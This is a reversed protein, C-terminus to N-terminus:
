LISCPGLDYLSSTCDADSSCEQYRNGTCTRFGQFPCQATPCSVVCLGSPCTAGPRSCCGNSSRDEVRQCGFEASNAVLFRGGECQVPVPFPDPVARCLAAASDVISAAIFCNAEYLSCIPLLSDSELCRETFLRCSERTYAISEEIQALGANWQTVQADTNACNQQVITESTCSPDNPTACPGCAGAIQCRTAGSCTENTADWSGGLETCREPAHQFGDIQCTSGDWTGGLNACTVAPTTELATSGLGPRATRPSLGLSLAANIRRTDRQATSLGCDAADLGRREVFRQTLRDLDGDHRQSCREFDGPEGERTPRVGGHHDDM